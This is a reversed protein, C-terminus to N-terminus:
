VSEPFGKMDEDVSKAIENLNIQELADKLSDISSEILPRSFVGDMSAIDLLTIGKKDLAKIEKQLDRTEVAKKKGM